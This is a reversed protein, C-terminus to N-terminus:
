LKSTTSHHNSTKSMAFLRTKMQFNKENIYFVFITMELDNMISLRKSKLILIKNRRASERSVDNVTRIDEAAVGADRLRERYFPVKRAAEILQRLRHAQLSAVREPAWWQSERLAAYEPGPRAPHARWLISAARERLASM